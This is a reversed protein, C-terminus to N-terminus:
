RELRSPSLRRRTVGLRVRAWVFCFGQDPRDPSRVRAPAVINPHGGGGALWESGGVLAVPRRHGGDDDHGDDNRAQERPRDGLEGASTRTAAANPAPYHDNQHHQRAPSEASAHAIALFEIQGQPAAEILFLRDGQVLVSLPRTGATDLIRRRVPARHAALVPSGPFRASAPRGFRRRLRARSGRRRFPVADAGGIDSTASLISLVARRASRPLGRSSEFNVAGARSGRLSAVCYAPKTSEPQVLGEEM